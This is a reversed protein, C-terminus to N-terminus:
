LIDSSNNHHHRNENLKKRVALWVSLGGAMFAFWAIGTLTLVAVWDIGFMM